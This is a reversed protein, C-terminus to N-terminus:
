GNNNAGLEKKMAIFENSVNGLTYGGLVIGVLANFASMLDNGTLALYFGGALSLLSLLFKTGVYKLLFTWNM